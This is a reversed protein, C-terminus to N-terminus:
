GFEPCVWESHVVQNRLERLGARDAGDLLLGVHELAEASLAGGAERLAKRLEVELVAWDYNAERFSERVSTVVLLRKLAAEVHAGAVVVRGVRQHLEHRYRRDGDDPGGARQVLATRLDTGGPRVGVPDVLTYTITRDPKPLRETVRTVLPEGPPPAPPYANIHGTEPDRVGPSPEGLTVGDSSDHDDADRTM